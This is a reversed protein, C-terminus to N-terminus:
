PAQEKGTVSAVTRGLAALVPALTILGDLIVVAAPAGLAGLPTGILRAELRAAVRITGGANTFKTANHLLNSVVQVFRTPDVDLVYPTDPLEVVLHIQKALIAARSADVASNVLSPLPTPECHLQIKGSTIRSVDLLDDILRVM